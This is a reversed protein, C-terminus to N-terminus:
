RPRPLVQGRIQENLRRLAARAFRLDENADSVKNAKLDERIQLIHNRLKESSTIKNTELWADLQDNTPAEAM